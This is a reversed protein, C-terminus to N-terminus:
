IYVVCGFTDPYGNLNTSEVIEAVGTASLHISDLGCGHLRWLCVNTTSHGTAVLEPVKLTKGDYSELKEPPM